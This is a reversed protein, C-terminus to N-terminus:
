SKLNKILLLNFENRRTLDTKGMVTVPSHEGQGKRSGHARRWRIEEGGHGASSLTHCFLKTPVQHGALTLGSCRLTFFVLFM